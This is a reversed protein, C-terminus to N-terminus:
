KDLYDLLSKITYQWEFNKKFIEINESFSKLLKKNQYIIKIKDALDLYDGNKFIFGTEGNKIFEKLGGADSVMFPMNISLCFSIVGSQTAKTYPLVILDIEKM